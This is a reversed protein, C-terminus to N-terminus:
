GRGDGIRIPTDHSKVKLRRGRHRDLLSIVESSSLVDADIYIEDIDDPIPAKSAKERGPHSGVSRSDAISGDRNRRLTPNMSDMRGFTLPSDTPERKGYGVIVIKKEGERRFRASLSPIVINRGTIISLLGLGYGLLVGVRDSPFQLNGSLFLIGLFLLYALTINKWIQGGAVKGFDAREFRYSRRFASVFAYCFVVGLSLRAIEFPNVSLYSPSIKLIYKIAAFASLFALGALLSDVAALVARRMILSKDYYRNDKYIYGSKMMEGKERLAGEVTRTLRGQIDAKEIYDYAGNRLAESVSDLDAGNCVMIAMTGPTRKKIAQVLGSGDIGHLRVDLIAVDFECAHIKGLAELGDPVLTTRHGKGRLIGVISNGIETDQEVVLIEAM